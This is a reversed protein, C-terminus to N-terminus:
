KYGIIEKWRRIFMKTLNFSDFGYPGLSYADNCEVLLTSGEDTVGFDISYAVPAGVYDRVAGHIIRFDPTETFDGMYKRCDLIKGDLVFSRYESIFRVPESLLIPTEIDLDISCYRFMELEEKSHVLQGNFLKGHVAPKVFVPYNINTSNIAEKITSTAIKRGCYGVLEKPIDLPKPPEVGLRRFVDLTTPVGAVVLTEMDIKLDHPKDEDFFEIPINLLRLGNTYYFSADNVYEGNIRQVYAKKFGQLERIEDKLNNM